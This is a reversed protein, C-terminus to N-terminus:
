SPEVTITISEDQEALTVEASTVRLNQEFGDWEVTVTDGIAYDQGYVAGQDEGTPAFTLTPNYRKDRLADQGIGYITTPDNDKANSADATFEIRNFPSDFVTDGRVQYLLRNAGQGQGEVFCFTAEERRDIDLSPENLNGRKTSFYVFPRGYLENSQRTRDSGIPMIDLQLVNDYLRRIRFDVFSRHAFDQMKTLLNDLRLRDGVSNGNGVGPPITLGPTQRAASALDGMQQRLYERMVVEARGAKTSYGGAQAPDDPPYILRRAILHNLSLAGVVLTEENGSRFTNVERCLYTEEVTFLGTVPSTRAVEIFYDLGFITRYGAFIPLSLSLSGVDNLTRSYRLLVQDGGFVALTAGTAGNFITIQYDQLSM